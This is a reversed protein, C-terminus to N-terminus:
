FIFCRNNWKRSKLLTNHSFDHAFNFGLLVAFFGYLIFSLVFLYPNNARYIMFYSFAVLLFYISFKFWILRKLQTPKIVLKEKVREKILRLLESDAAIHIHKDKMLE